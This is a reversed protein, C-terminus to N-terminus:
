SDFMVGQLKPASCTLNGMWIMLKVKADQNISHVEPLPEMNADKHVRLKLFRTNLFYTLDTQVQTQGGFNVGGGNFVPIGEYILTQYGAKVTMSDSTVRQMAQLATQLFQYHTQGAYILKPKDTNRTLSNICYDYYTRILAATSATGGPEPATTDNVTDFAFNQWFGAGTASRTINGYTGSTPTKSVAAKIGTIQLGSDSTGDSLLDSQFNNEFTFEAARVRAKGLKIVGDPGASMREERGNIVTAIAIQKWEFEPSTLVPNVATSIQQSGYYRTYTDNEDFYVEELISRGGSETELGDYEKLSALLPNNNTVNDRAVGQRRRQLATIYESLGPESM